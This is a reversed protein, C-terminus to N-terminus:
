KTRLLWISVRGYISFSHTKTFERPINFDHVNWEVLGFDLQGLSM